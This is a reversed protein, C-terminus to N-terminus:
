SSTFHVFYFNQYDTLWYELLKKLCKIILFYLSVEVHVVPIDFKLAAFMGAPTSNYRM